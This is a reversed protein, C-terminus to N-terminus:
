RLLIYQQLAFAYPLAVAHRSCQLGSASTANCGRHVSLFFAGPSFSQVFLDCVVVITGQNAIVQIQIHQAWGIRHMQSADLNLTQPIGVKKQQNAFYLKRRSSLHKSRAILLRGHLRRSQLHLHSVSKQPAWSGSCRCVCDLSTEQLPSGTAARSRGSRGATGLHAACCGRLRM